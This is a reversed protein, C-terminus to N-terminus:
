SFKTAMSFIGNGFIREMKEGVQLHPNPANNEQVVVYGREESQEMWFDMMTEEMVTVYNEGNLGGKPLIVLPGRKGWMFCGWVMVSQRGSKFSPTLCSSNFRESPLRWVHVQQWNRFFIRKDM